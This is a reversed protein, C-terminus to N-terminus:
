APQQVVTCRRARKGAQHMSACGPKAVICATAAASAGTRLEARHTCRCAPSTAGRAARRVKCFWRPQKLNYNNYYCFKTEESGCRACALPATPPALRARAGGKKDGGAGCDEALADVSASADKTTSATGRPSAPARGAPQSFAAASGTVATDNNSGSASRQGSAAALIANLGDAGM